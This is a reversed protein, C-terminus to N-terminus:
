IDQYDPEQGNDHSSRSEHQGSLEVPPIMMSMVILVGLAVSDGVHLCSDGSGTVNEAEVSEDSASPTV